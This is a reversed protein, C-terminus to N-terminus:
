DDRNRGFLGMAYACHIALPAGWAVILLVIWHWGGGLLLLVLALGVAALAFVLVHIQFGHLRGAERREGPETM